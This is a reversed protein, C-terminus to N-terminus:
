FESPSLLRFGRLDLKGGSKNDGVEAFRRLVVSQTYSEARLKFEYLEIGSRRNGRSYAANWAWFTFPGCTLDFLVVMYPYRPETNSGEIVLAPGAHSGLKCSNAM